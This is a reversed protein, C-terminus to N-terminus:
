SLFLRPKQPVTSKSGLNTLNSSVKLSAPLSHEEILDSDIGLDIKM